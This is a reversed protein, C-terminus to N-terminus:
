ELQWAMLRYRRLEVHLSIMWESEVAASCCGSLARNLLHADQQRCRIVALPVENAVGDSLLHEVLIHLQSQNNVKGQSQHNPVRNPHSPPAHLLDSRSLAAKKYFYASTVVSTQMSRRWTSRLAFCGRARQLPSDAAFSQGNKHTYFHTHIEVSMGKDILCRQSSAMVPSNRSKLLPVTKLIRGNKKISYRNYSHM